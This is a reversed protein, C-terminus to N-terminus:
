VNGAAPELEPEKEDPKRVLDYKKRYYRFTRFTMGLLKGAEMQVGACRDLAEQMLKKRVAELHVELDVGGAPLSELGLALARGRLAILSAALVAIAELATEPRLGGAGGARGARALHAIADICDELSRAKAVSPGKM